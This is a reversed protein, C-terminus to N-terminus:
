KEIVISKYICAVNQVLLQVYNRHKTSILVPIWYQAQAVFIQPHESKM